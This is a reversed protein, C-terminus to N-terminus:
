VLQHNQHLLFESPSCKLNSHYTSNYIKISKPLIKDWETIDDVQARIIDILTKNMREAAGNSQPSYPSSYIHRINFEELVAETEGGKFELGNDSIISNPTRVLSPIIQYKLVKAIVSSTKNKVPAAALWKSAHDVVVLAAVNGSKSTPFKVLDMAAMEFPENINIKLTPPSEGQVNVKNLQCYLCCRCIEKAIKDMAPHWFQRKVLHLLKHRGLHALKNHVKHIVETALEFSVVIAQLDSDISKVLLNNVIKLSNFSRKFQNLSPNTWRKPTVRNGVRKRLSNLAFNQEQMIQLQSNDVAFKLPRVQEENNFAEISTVITPVAGLAVNLSQGFTIRNNNNGIEIYSERFNIIAGLKELFNLGIVVCCPLCEEEVIAFEFSDEMQVEGIQLKLRTVGLCGTSSGVVGVFKIGEEVHLDESGDKVREWTKSGILCVQAGTDVLTCMKHGNYLTTTSMSYIHDSCQEHTKFEILNGVEIDCEPMTLNEKVKLTNAKDYSISELKKTTYIPNYHILSICQLNVIRDRNDSNALYVVPIKIDHYVRIELQFLSSAALLVESCPLQSDYMMQKLRRLESKNNSIKYKEPNRILEKVLIERLQLHNEPFEQYERWGNEMGILLAEFLSNGGGEVKQLIKFEKPLGGEVNQEQQPNEMRSLFDAAENQVGPVYKIEFDYQSLDELTRQIRANHASMNYMYILPKHDTYILFAIGFLFPRFVECGWRIAALERETTSYNRQTNSFCMAAYGIVRCEGNQTQQLCAGAGSGSADVYLQLKESDPDYNPYTLLVDKAVEEKLKSFAIEKEETWEIKTKDAKGTIECLAKSIESCHPIFKRQFNILGLFQRLEKVTDPKKRGLNKRERM